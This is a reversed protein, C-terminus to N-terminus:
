QHVQLEDTSTLYQSGQRCICAAVDCLMHCSCHILERDNIYHERLSLPSMYKADAGHLLASDCSFEKCHSISQTGDTIHSHSHTKKKKIMFCKGLKASRWWGLVSFKDLVQFM